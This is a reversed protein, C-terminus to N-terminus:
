LFSFQGFMNPFLGFWHKNGNSYFFDVVLCSNM